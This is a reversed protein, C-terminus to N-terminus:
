IGCVTRFTLNIRGDNVRKQVPLSHQYDRQSNGTMLLCSGNSLILDTVHKSTNERIKFKRSSGLSISAITPSFGLEPEDDAHWGMKDEGNRYWNLLAANFQTGFWNNLSNKLNLVSVHWPEPLFLQNSYRYGTGADGMYIQKRPITHQKNFITLTPQQWELALLQQYLSRAKQEAIFHEFYYFDPAVCQAKNIREISNSVNWAM